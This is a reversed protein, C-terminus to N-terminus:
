FATGLRSGCKRCRQTTAASLITSPWPQYGCRACVLGYRAAVKQKQRITSYITGGLLAVIFMVEITNVWLGEVHLRALMFVVAVSLALAVLLKIDNRKDIAHLEPDESIDTDDDDSHPDQPAM